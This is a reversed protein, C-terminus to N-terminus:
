TFRKSIQKDIPPMSDYFSPASLIISCTGVLCATTFIWLFLRDVVLAVYKWQEKIMKEQDEKRLHHCVYSIGDIAKRVEPTASVKKARGALPTVQQQDVIPTSSCSAAKVLRNRKRLLRTDNYLSHPRNTQSMYPSMQVFTTKNNNDFNSNIITDLSEEPPWPIEYTRLPEQPERMLLIRPLIKLFIKRVWPPM